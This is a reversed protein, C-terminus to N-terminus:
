SKRFADIGFRHGTGDPVTVTQAELDVTLSAGPAQHLRLRLATVLPEPLIM